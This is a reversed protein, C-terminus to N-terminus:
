VITYYQNSYVGSSSEVVLPSNGCYQVIASFGRTTCGVFIASHGGTSVYTDGTFTAIPTYVPITPSGSLCDQQINLGKKWSRSGPLNCEKIVLAEDSGTLSCDQALPSKVISATAMDIQIRSKDCAISKCVCPDGSNKKYQLSARIILDKTCDVYRNPHYTHYQLIGELTTWIYSQDQCGHEKTESFLVRDIDDYTSGHVSSCIRYSGNDLHMPRGDILETTPQCDCNLSKNRYSAALTAVLKKRCDSSVIEVEDLYHWVSNASLCLDSKGLLLLTNYTPIDECHFRASTAIQPAATPAVTTAVGSPFFCPPTGTKFMHNALLMFKREVTNNLIQWQPTFESILIFKHM